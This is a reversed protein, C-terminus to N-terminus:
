SRCEKGVRREESRADIQFAFPVTLTGVSIFNFYEAVHSNGNKVQLFIWISIVFSILITGCGIVAIVSKSLQNRFLGNILFGILPLFPVLWVIQLANQM